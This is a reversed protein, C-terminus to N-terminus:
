LNPILNSPFFFIIFYSNNMRCWIGSLIHGNNKEGQVKNKEHWELDYMQHQERIYENDWQVNAIISIQCWNKDTFHCWICIQQYNKTIRFWLSLIPKATMGINKYLNRRKWALFPLYHEFDFMLVKFRTGFPAAIYKARLAM